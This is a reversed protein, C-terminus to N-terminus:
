AVGRAACSVPASEYQGPKLASFSGPVELVEYRGPPAKSVVHRKPDCWTVTVKPAPPEPRAPEHTGDNRIKEAHANAARMEAFAARLRSGRGAKEAAQAAKKAKVAEAQKAERERRAADIAARAAAREADAALRQAARVARGKRLKVNSRDLAAQRVAKQDADRQACRKAFDSNIAEAPAKADYYVVLQRSERRTLQGKEALRLATQHITSKDMHALETRLELGSAGKAGKSLVLALVQPLNIAPRGTIM